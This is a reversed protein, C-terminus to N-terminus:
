NMDTVNTSVGNILELDPMIDLQAINEILYEELDEDCVLEQIFKM